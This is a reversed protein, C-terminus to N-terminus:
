LIKAVKFMKALDPNGRNLTPVINSNAIISRRLTLLKAINTSQAFVHLYKSGTIASTYTLIDGVNM